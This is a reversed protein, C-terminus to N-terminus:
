VYQEAKGHDHRPPPPCDRRFNNEPSVAPLPSTAFNELREGVAELQDLLADMQRLIKLKFRRPVEDKLWAFRAEVENLEDEELSQGILTLDDTVSEMTELTRQYQQYRHDFSEENVGTVPEEPGIGMKIKQYLLSLRKKLSRKRKPELDAADLKTSVSEIRLLIENVELCRSPFSSSIPQFDDM